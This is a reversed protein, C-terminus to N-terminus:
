GGYIPYVYDFKEEGAIHRYKSGNLLCRVRKNKMERKGRKGGVNGGPKTKRWKM